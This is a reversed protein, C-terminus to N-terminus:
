QDTVDAACRFGVDPVGRLPSAARQDGQYIGTLSTFSGGRIVRLTGAKPGIPNVTVPPRSYYFLPEPPTPFWDAVWEAVNGFLDYIPPGDEVAAVTDYFRLDAGQEALTHLITAEPSRHRQACQQGDRGGIVLVKCLDRGEAGLPGCGKQDEGPPFAAREWEADTPLRRHVFRCYRDADVWSVGRVPEAPKGTVSAKTCVKGKVCADYHANTVEDQDILYAKLTIEIRNKPVDGVGRLYKGAPVLVQPGAVPAAQASVSLALLAAASMTLSRTNM